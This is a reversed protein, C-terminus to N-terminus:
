SGGLQSQPGGLQSWPEGLKIQPGDLVAAEELKGSCCCATSSDVPPEEGAGVHGGPMKRAAGDGGSAEWWKSEAPVCSSLSRVPPLFSARNGPATSELFCAPVRLSRIWVAPVRLRMTRGYAGGAHQIRRSSCMCETGCNHRQLAASIKLNSNIM